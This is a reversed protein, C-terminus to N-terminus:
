ENLYKKSDDSKVFDKFSLVDPWDKVQDIIFQGYAVALKEVQDFTYCDSNYKELVRVRAELCEVRALNFKIAEDKATMNKFKFNVM